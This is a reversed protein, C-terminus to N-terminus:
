LNFKSNRNFKLDSLKYQLNIEIRELKPNM